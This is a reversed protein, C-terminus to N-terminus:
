DRHQLRHEAPRHHKAHPEMQAGIAQFIGKLQAGAATVSGVVVLVILALLLGHEIAFVGRKSELKFGRAALAFLEILRSM